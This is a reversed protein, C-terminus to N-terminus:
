TQGGGTNGMRVGGGGGKKGRGEGKRDAEAKVETRYVINCYRFLNNGLAAQRTLYISYSDM